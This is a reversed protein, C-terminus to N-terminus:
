SFLNKGWFAGALPFDSRGEWSGVDAEECLYDDDDKVDDDCDDDHDDGDDYDYHYDVNDGSKFLTCAHSQRAIVFFIFLACRYDVSQRPSEIDM